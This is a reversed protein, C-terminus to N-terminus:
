ITCNGKSTGQRRAALVGASPQPQDQTELLDTGLRAIHHDAGGFLRDLVTVRKLLRGVICEETVGMAGHLHVAQEAVWVGAHGLHIKAARIASTREKSDALRAAAFALSRLEEVAIYMDVVRHRLVQFTALPADFQRRTLLHDASQALAAELCGLAEGVAALAGTHFADNLCPRVDAGSSGLRADEDLVVDDFIFDAAETGDILRYATGRVGHTSPSVLFLALRDNGAQDVLRASVILRDADAGYLAMRKAGNLRYGGPRRDARTRVVDGEPDRSSEEHALALRARGALVDPAWRARQDVAGLDFLPMTLATGSLFPTRVGGSGLAQSLLLLDVSSGDFGGEGAPVLVGLWGQEVLGAWNLRWDDGAAGADPRLGTVFNLAAESLLREDESLHNWTTM